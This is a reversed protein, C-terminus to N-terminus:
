IGCRLLSAARPRIRDATRLIGTRSTTSVFESQNFRVPKVPRFPGALPCLFPVRPLSGLRARPNPAIVPGVAFRGASAM